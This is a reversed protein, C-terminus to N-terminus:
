LTKAGGQGSRFRRLNDAADTFGLADFAGEASAFFSRASQVPDDLESLGSRHGLPLQLFEDVM